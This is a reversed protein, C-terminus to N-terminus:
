SVRRSRRMCHTVPVSNALNWRIGTQSLARPASSSPAPPSGNCQQLCRIESVCEMVSCAWVCTLLGPPFNRSWRRMCIHFQLRISISSSDNWMHFMDDRYRNVILKKTRVIEVGTEAAQKRDPERACHIVKRWFILSLFDSETRHQVNPSKM